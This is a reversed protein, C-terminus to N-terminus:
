RGQRAENRSYSPRLDHQTAFVLQSPVPFYRHRISQPTPRAYAIYRDLTGSHLISVDPSLVETSSVWEYTEDKANGCCYRVLLSAHFTFFPGRSREGFIKQPQRVGVAIRWTDGLQLCSLRRAIALSGGM